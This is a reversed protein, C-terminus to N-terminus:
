AILRPSTDYRDAKDYGIILLNQNSMRSAMNLAVCLGARTSRGMNTTEPLPTDWRLLKSQHYAQMMDKPLRNYNLDMSSDSVLIVDDLIGENFLGSIHPFEIGQYSTGPLNHRSLTGPKIGFKRKYRDPDTSHLKQYTVASQFTEFANIKAGSVKMKRGIGLTNSGNGVASIFHDIPTIALVESAITELAKLTIENNSGKRGMSHNIFFTGKNQRKNTIFFDYLFPKFGNVYDDANTLILNKASELHKLVASVRAKEGGDPMAVLCEYGLAAGLGAFSVGASGSSTELVKQGPSIKGTEEYHKFLALFVRDYHSGFPQASEMKIWIKNGNPTAGEYLVLPTNAAQKELRSYLATREKNM